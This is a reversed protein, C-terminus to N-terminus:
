QFYANLMERGIRSAKAGGRGPNVVIVAVAIKPDELPAAAVFWHNVGEPYTGTLTGTKAAVTIGQLTKDRRKSFESKSTGITTTLKMMELLKKASSSEMVRTLIQPSSKYLITGSGDVVRDVIIPKPMMGANAIGSVLTAAHIPSLTIEGFGAASRGLEFPDGIPFTATSPVLPLDFGLSSNFGFLQAYQSLVQPNLYKMAVRAFIVNCSRGLAEALHMHRRDARPNPLYNWRNLTYTGGRFKIPSYPDVTSKELAAAATVLKFLSAAPFKAYLSLNPISVSKESIALVQGTKPNMAVVAIHPARAKSVIQDAARQLKPDLTYFILENRQSISAFKGLLLNKFTPITKLSVAGKTLTIIVKDLNALPGKVFPTAQNKKTEDKADAGRRTDNYPKSQPATEV